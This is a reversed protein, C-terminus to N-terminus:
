QRELIVVNNKKVKKIIDDNNFCKEAIEISDCRGIIADNKNYFIYINKLIWEKKKNEM